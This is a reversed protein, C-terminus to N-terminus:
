KLPKRDPENEPGYSYAPPYAPATQGPAPAVYDGIAKSADTLERRDAADHADHLAESKHGVLDM